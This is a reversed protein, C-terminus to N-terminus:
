ARPHDLEQIVRTTLEPALDIHDLCELCDKMLADTPSILEVPSGPIDSLEGTAAHVLGIARGLTALDFDRTMPTGDVWGLVFGGFPYKACPALSESYEPTADCNALLRLAAIEIRRSSQVPRHAVKVAKIVGDSTTVRYVSAGFGSAIFKADSCCEFFESVTVSSKDRIQTKAPRSV